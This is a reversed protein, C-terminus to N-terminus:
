IRTASALHGAKGDWNFEFAVRDGVKLGRLLDPTGSFGMTMAPWQLETIPGHSIKVTGLSLDMAAITGVGKAMRAAPSMAMNAMADPKTPDASPAPKGCGVLALPLMAAILITKTM